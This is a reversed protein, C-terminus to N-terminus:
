QDGDAASADVGELISRRDQSQVERPSCGVGVLQWELSKMTEVRNWAEKVNALSTCRVGDTSVSPAMM